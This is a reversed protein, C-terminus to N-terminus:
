RLTAMVEALPRDWKQRNCPGCAPRQNAPWDSGGRNLPIVHDTQTAPAGCMWCRGAYYLWRQRIQETTASGPANIKRAYRRMASRRRLEAAREPHDALWQKVRYHNDVKAKARLEPVTLRNDRAKARRWAAARRQSEAKGRDPHAARWAVGYSQAERKCCDKCKNLRGEAMRSHRYFNELPLLRSCRYCSKVQM